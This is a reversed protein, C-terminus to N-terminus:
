TMERMCTWWRPQKVLGVVLKLENSAFFRGPCANRGHGFALFDPSTTPFARRARDVYQVDKDARGEAFRFPRFQDADEGFVTRDRNYSYAPVMLTTLYPLHAGSPTDIGQRAAVRRGLAVPAAGHLRMSERLLSDLKHMAALSRKDWRGSHAALVSSIEARLESITEPTDWCVLDIVANVLAFTTTHISVFNLVLLRDALKEPSWLSAEGTEKAQKISWELFDNPAPGLRKNAEPDNQRADFEQVRRKITPKVINRFKYTHYRARLTILPAILPRVAPMAIRLFFSSVPVDQAYAMGTEVLTPDRCIPLGFFIRNSVSGIIQRGTEYVNIERWEHSTGWVRELARSAEDLMDPVLNGIEKTLTTVILHIHIPRNTIDQDMITYKVQFLDGLNMHMDVQSDPAEVIFKTDSLPLIVPSSTLLPIIAAQGKSTYETYMEHEAAKLNWTNRWAARRFAFWEGKRIGVIPLDPLDSPKFFKYLVWSLFLVGAVAAMNAPHLVIGFLM